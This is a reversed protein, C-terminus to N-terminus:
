LFIKPLKKKKNKTVFSFNGKRADMEKKTLSLVYLDLNNFTSNSNINDM